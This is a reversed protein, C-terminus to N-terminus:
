VKVEWPYVVWKDTVRGYWRPTVKSTTRFHLTCIRINDRHVGKKTLHEIVAALTAGSDVIDDVIICRKNPLDIDDLIKVSDLKNNNEDYHSTRIVFLPLSLTKSILAGPYVGGYGVALIYQPDYVTDNIKTVLEDCLKIVGGMTIDLKLMKTHREVESNIAVIIAQMTTRVVVKADAIKSVKLGLRAALSKNTIRVSSRNTSRSDRECLVLLERDPNTILRLVGLAVRSDKSILKERTLNYLEEAEIADTPSSNDVITDYVPMGEDTKDFISIPSQMVDLKLDRAIYSHIRADTPYSLRNGTSSKVHQILDRMDGDALSNFHMSLQEKVYLPSVVIRPVRKQQYQDDLIVSMNTWILRKAWSILSTGKSSDWTMVAIWVQTWGVAELDDQTIYYNPLKVAKIRAQDRIYPIVMPLLREFQETKNLYDSDSLGNARVVDPQTLV